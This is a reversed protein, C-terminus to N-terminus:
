QSVVRTCTGFVSPEVCITYCVYGKPFILGTRHGLSFKFLCSRAMFRGDRITCRNGKRLVVSFGLFSARGSKATRLGQGIRGFDFGITNLGLITSQYRFPRYRLPALHISRPLFITFRSVSGFDCLSTTEPDTRDLFGTKLGGLSAVKQSLLLTGKM